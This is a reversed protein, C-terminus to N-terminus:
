MGTGSGTFGRGSGTFGRLLFYKEKEETEATADQRDGENVGDIVLKIRKGESVIKVEDCKITIKM